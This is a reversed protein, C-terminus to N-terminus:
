AGVMMRIQDNTYNNLQFMIIVNQFYVLSSPNKIFLATSVKAGFNQLSCKQELVLCKDRM